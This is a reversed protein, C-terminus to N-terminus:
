EHQGRPDLSRGLLAPVEVPDGEQSPEYLCAIAASRTSAAISADTSSSASASSTPVVRARAAAARAPPSLVRAVRITELQRATPALVCDVERDRRPVTRAARARSTSARDEDLEPQRALNRTERSATRLWALCRECSSYVPM